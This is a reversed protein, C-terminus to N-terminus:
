GGPLDSDRRAGKMIEPDDLDMGRMTALRDAHRRRLEAKVVETLARNVTEKMTAAGLAARARALLDDDIDILRKTVTPLIDSRDSHTYVTQRMGCVTHARQSM